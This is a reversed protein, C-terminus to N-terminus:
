VTASPYYFTFLSVITGIMVAETQLWLLASCLVFSLSGLESVPRTERCPGSDREDGTEEKDLELAAPLSNRRTCHVAQKGAGKREPEGGTLRTPEPADKKRAEQWGDAEEKRGAGGRWRWRM